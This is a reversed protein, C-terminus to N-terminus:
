DMGFITLDMQLVEAGAPQVSLALVLVLAILPKM